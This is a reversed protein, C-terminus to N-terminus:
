RKVMCLPALGRLHASVLAHGLFELSTTAPLYLITEEEIPVEWEEQQHHLVEVTAESESVKRGRIREELFEKGEDLAIWVTKVGARRASDSLERRYSQKLYTADVIAVGSRQAKEIARTRLLDYVRQSMEPTYIGGHLPSGSSMLPPVGALAKRVFDSSIREAGLIDALSQALTSKGSGSLGCFCFVVPDLGKLSYRTALILYTKLQDLASSKVDDPVEPSTLTLLNVKARVLARYALYFPFVALHTSDSPILRLFEEAFERALPFHGQADLDM